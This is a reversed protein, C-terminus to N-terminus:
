AFAHSRRFAIQSKSIRLDVPGLERIIDYVHKFLAASAANKGFYDSLTMNADPSLLEASCRAGSAARVLNVILGISTGAMAVIMVARVVTNLWNGVVQSFDLPFVIYFVRMSALGAAALITQIFSHICGPRVTSQSSQIGPSKRCSELSAGSSRASAGAGDLILAKGTRKGM